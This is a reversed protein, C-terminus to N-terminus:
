MSTLEEEIKKLQEELKKMEPPLKGQHVIIQRKDTKKTRLYSKPVKSKLRTVLLDLEKMITKMEQFLLMKEKRLKNLIEVTQMSEIIDKSSELINRRVDVPDYIGVFYGKEM